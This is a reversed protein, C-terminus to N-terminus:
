FVRPVFNYYSSLEGRIDNLNLKDPIKLLQKIGKRNNFKYLRCNKLCEKVRDM